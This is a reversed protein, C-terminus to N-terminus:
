CTSLKNRISYETNKVILKSQKTQLAMTEDFYLRRAHTTKQAPHIVIAM